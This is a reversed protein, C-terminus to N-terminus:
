RAIGLAYAERLWGVLEGDVEGPAALHLENHFRHASVQEVKRVRPSEIRRNARINLRLKAKKPHVGAFASGATLHISTKRAEVGVPGFACVAALIAEYTQSVWPEAREFLVAEDPSM